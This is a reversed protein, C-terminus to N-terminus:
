DLVFDIEASLRHRVGRVASSIPRMEREACVKIASHACKPAACFAERLPVITSSPCAVSDSEADSGALSPDADDVPEILENGLGQHNREAHYYEVYERVTNELSKREFCIMQDLCESKLSRFWREMHSNM